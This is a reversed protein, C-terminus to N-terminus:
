RDSAERMAGCRCPVPPLPPTKIFIFGCQVCYAYPARESM